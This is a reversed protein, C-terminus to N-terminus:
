RTEEQENHLAIISGLRTVRRTLGTHRRELQARDSSSWRRAAEARM